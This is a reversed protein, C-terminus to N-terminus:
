WKYESLIWLVAAIAGMLGIPVAIKLLSFVANFTSVIESSQYPGLVKLKIRRKVMGFEAGALNEYSKKCLDLALGELEILHDTGAPNFVGKVANLEHTDTTFIEVCIAKPFENKVSEIIRERASNLISNSDLLIYFIQKQSASAFCAVKIGGSAIGSIEKPYENAWGVRLSEMLKKQEKAGNLADLMEFAVPSGPEIYDVDEGECNHCDIALAEGEDAANEMLAWGVALNVDETSLPARSFAPMVDKNISLLHCKSDGSKGYRYSFHAPELRIHKIAKKCEDLVYNISESAVPDLDHTATGHFVFTCKNPENQLGAEIKSSFEAGGLNGFPGFHFYPVVWDMKGNKTTFRAVGIWTSAVEGMEDFAEEIEKEQYLWQSAFMSIADSSSIGLNKKLPGSAVFLLSYMLLIFIITALVIRTVFDTLAGEFLFSALLIAFLHLIMQLTAFLWSSRTLGFAFKLTFFWILFALGFGAYIFNPTIAVSLLYFISYCTASALSVALARSFNVKRRALSLFGACLISPVAIVFISTGAGSIISTLGLTKSYVIGIISGVILSVLIIASLLVRVSPLSVFYKTISIAEKAAEM